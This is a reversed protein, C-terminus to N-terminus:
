ELIQIIGRQGNVRWEPDAQDLRDAEGPKLGVIPDSKLTRLAVFPAPFYPVADAIPTTTPWRSDGLLRRYNADGKIIVLHAQALEARLPAPIEWFFYSSNWFFDPQITLRQRARYSELRTALASFDADRQAKLAALTLDVDQLTADSVFTPHAKVHLTVQGAWEFRLLFDVLVLDTLLETGANDCMVDIKIGPEEGARITRRLYAIVAESDDVLLNSQEREVAIQGGTAQIVQTYSLDVRNGWVCYHLLAQLRDPADHAAQNLASGLVEWATQGALEAQKQPLFPDQGAWEAEGFYGTAEILRRYFFAEAFYWPMNLWSQHQYARWARRWQHRDPGDGVLPRLPQNEVLEAQLVRLQQKIAEPYVGAQDALVTDVIAPIRGTMTKHAFSGPEGTMLPPPPHEPDFRSYAPM